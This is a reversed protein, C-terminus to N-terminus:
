NALTRALYDSVKDVAKLYNFEEEVMVLKRFIISDLTGVFICAFYEFDNKSNIYKKEVLFDYLLKLNDFRHQDMKKYEATFDQDIAVAERLIIVSLAWNEAHLKFREALMEEMFGKLDSSKKYYKELNFECHFIQQYLRILELFLDKKSSFYLYFTGKAIGVKDVIDAIHSNYYGKAAFVKIAEIIIQERRDTM